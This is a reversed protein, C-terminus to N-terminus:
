PLRWPGSVKANYEDPNAYIQGIKALGAEGLQKEQAKMQAEIQDKMMSKTQSPLSKMM